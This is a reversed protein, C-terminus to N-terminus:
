AGNRALMGRMAAILPAQPEGLAYTERYWRAYAEVSSAFSVEPRYGLVREARTLGHAVMRLQQRSFPSAFRPGSGVEEVRIPGAIRDRLKAEVAPMRAVLSRVLTDVNALLPDRRLAQRVDSSVLHRLSRLPNLRAPRGPRAEWFADDRPLRPAPHACGALPLLAEILDRWRVDPGDTVFMRRGNGSPATLALEIAHCLNDVDVVNIPADGNGLMVFRDRRLDDILAAYFPSYRGGVNPPCLVVCDLGRAHAREVCIDQRLKQWGYSNGPPNAPADESTATAPPPDGYVAVSSLHVFRRIGASRAGDLLNRFGEAMVADSGRTCNVVHTCGALAPQIASRQMIDLRQMPICRRALRWANGFTNVFPRVGVGAGILRETLTAGVFGSAGLIAVQMESSAM